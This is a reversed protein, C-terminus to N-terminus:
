RGVKIGMNKLESASVGEARLAEVEAKSYSTKRPKDPDGVAPKASCGLSALGCFAFMLLFSLGHLRM